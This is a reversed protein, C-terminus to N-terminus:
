DAAAPKPRSAYFIRARGSSTKADLSYSSPIGCVSLMTVSFKATKDYGDGFEERKTFVPMLVVADKRKNPLIVNGQIGDQAIVRIPLVAGHVTAVAFNAKESMRTARAATIEAARKAASLVMTPLTGVRTTSLVVLRRVASRVLLLEVDRCAQLSGLRPRTVQSRGRRQLWGTWM